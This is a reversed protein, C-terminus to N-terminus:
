FPSHVGYFRITAGNVLADGTCFQRLDEWSNMMYDRAVGIQISSQKIRNRISDILWVRVIDVTHFIKEM